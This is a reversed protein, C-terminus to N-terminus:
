KRKKTMLLLNSSFILILNYKCIKKDNNVDCYPRGYVIKEIYFFELHFLIPWLTKQLMDKNYIARRTFIVTGNQFCYTKITDIETQRFGFFKYVM